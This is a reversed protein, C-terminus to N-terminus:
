RQFCLVDVDDTARRSPTLQFIIMNAPVWACLLRGGHPRSNFYEIRSCLKLPVPRWGHPRSNFYEREFNGELDTGTARRSPTLQFRSICPCGGPPLPTARRSPTLQFIGRLRFTHYARRDGETLAHTSIHLQFRCDSLRTRRGGHPRSNFYILFDLSHLDSHTARRSPTLQFEQVELKDVDRLTARRSPTLQFTQM